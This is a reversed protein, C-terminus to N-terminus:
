FFFYYYYYILFFFVLVPYLCLALFVLVPYINNMFLSQSISIFLSLSLSQSVSIFLSLSLSLHFVKLNLSCPPRLSIPPATLCLPSALFVSWTACQSTAETWKYPLDLKLSSRAPLRSGQGNRQNNGDTPQQTVQTQSTNADTFHKLSARDLKM